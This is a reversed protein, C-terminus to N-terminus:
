RYYLSIRNQARDFIIKRVLCRLLANKQDPPFAGDRLFLILDSAVANQNEGSLRNLDTELAHCAREIEGREKLYEALHEAGGLYAERLRSLRLREKRLRLRLLGREESEEGSFHPSIRLATTQLDNELLSVVMAELKRTSISHSEQCTGHSYGGCQMSGSSSPILLSGCGSCFVLGRLTCPPAGRRRVAGPRLRSQAEEWLTEPVIPEHCGRTLLTDTEPSGRGLPGGPNWRLAGCYVPNKLLYRVARPEWKGGRRTRLGTSNLKEAIEGPSAGRLFDAFVLRVAAAEEADPVFRKEAMRYGFPPGAVPEGRAIKERMGRRVEEALNVSYYEDMAEIMAEVLISTKEDGLPESVSIVEIGRRRLLTKYLVSDARSRAFRSFKWLLICDFPRPRRQAEAIMRQFETRKKAGRGSVGDDERFIYQDPLLYGNSKAYDRICSLQSDPSYELQDSTSVRIYAAATKM